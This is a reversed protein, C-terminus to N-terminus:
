AGGKKDKRASLDMYLRGIPAGEEYIDYTKATKHWLDAEVEKFVINFMKNLFEFMGKLVSNLEFYEKFYEEDIDFEEKRLKESFYAVDFSQLDDM